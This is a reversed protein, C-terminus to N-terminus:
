IIYDSDRTTNVTKLLVSSVRTFSFYILDKSRENLTVNIKMFMKIVTREPLMELAPLSFDFDRSTTDHTDHCITEDIEDIM